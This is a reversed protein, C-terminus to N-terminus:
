SGLSSAIVGIEQLQLHACLPQFVQGPECLLSVSLATTRFWLGWEYGCHTTPTQTRLPVTGLRGPSPRLQLTSSSLRAERSRTEQGARLGPLVTFLCQVVHEGKEAKPLAEHTSLIGPVVRGLLAGEKACGLLPPHPLFPIRPLWLTPLSHSPETDPLGSPSQAMQTSVPFTLLLGETVPAQRASPITTPASPAATAFAQLHSATQLVQFFHLGVREDM